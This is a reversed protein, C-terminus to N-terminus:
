SRSGRSRQGTGKRAEAPRPARTVFDFGPAKYIWGAILKAFGHENISATPTRRGGERRGAITWDTLELQAGLVSLFRFPKPPIGRGADKPGNCEIVFIMLYIAEANHGQWGSGKLYRSGKIEIGDHCYQVANRPYMGAPILDPHGNHFMNRTLTTSYKPITAGMYEGVISSFNAPLLFSELRETDRSRLQINIFGLFEEFDHMAKFIHEPTCGYPIFAGLNLGAHDAPVPTCAALELDGTM